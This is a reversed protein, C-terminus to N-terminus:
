EILIGCGRQIVSNKLGKFLDFYFARQGKDMVFMLVCFYISLMVSGGIMLRLFPGEFQGFYLYAGFTLIGAVIGALIPRGAAFLVDWPSIMTGHLCWAIHPVLWLCMAISYSLAVGSPGYPLGIIYATIVLLAIVFGIKLSRVQLRISYLLWAVPNIIGFILITPSLLRFILAAETWKSGLVILVIDDAFLTCFITVPITISIVFSYGKLFYSRLRGPNDQLRSLASFAVVGVASNLNETPINILQYARGYLGLADPGWVRGLLVKEFNYAGYVVLSNLTVTGGFRLMPWIKADLRPLGPVWGAIMWVCATSVAPLAVAAAVLAWYGFGLIAMGIAATISVLLSLTEIVTLAVYRLERQLLAFHQVGAANFLFGAGMAVTVWFLRPEHYFAVIVPAAALCLFGLLLGVTMNIWFLASIQEDSITASQVTASSLGASTLLGLFGTVAAVMGVLGFDKPDLLRALVVLSGLRLGFSAAQGCLKVFGGRITRDKLDEM